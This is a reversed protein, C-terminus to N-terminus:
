FFRADLALEYIWPKRSWGKIRPCREWTIGGGSCRFARLNAGRCIAVVLVTHSKPPFERQADTEYITNWNRMLDDIQNPM